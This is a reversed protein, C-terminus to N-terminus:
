DLPGTFSEHVYHFFISTSTHGEALNDRSHPLECGRYLLSDGLAQYVTVMGSPTHLRLPWPTQRYPEPSYDLCLTLSFECQDRDTHKPLDAGPQYSALYVYSPKVPEGVLASVAPTLQHHFFRAISENHVIFRQRSQNDGLSLKGVRIQQRYYRRLAGLHFPHILGAVPAYGHKRFESGGHSVATEWERRRLVPDEPELFVDAQRFAALNAPPINRPAAGGPQADALMARFAYGIWFPQWAGTQPSRTWAIDGKAFRDTFASLAATAPPSTGRWSFYSEPNVLLPRGTPDEWRGTRSRESVLHDPQDDLRCYFLSRPLQPVEQRGEVTLREIWALWEADKVSTAM